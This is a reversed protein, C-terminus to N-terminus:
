AAQKLANLNASRTDSALQSALEASELAGMKRYHDSLQQAARWDNPCQMLYSEVQDIAKEPLELMELLKAYSCTYHLSIQSLMALTIEAQQGNNESLNCQTIRILATEILRGVTKMDTRSSGIADSCSDIAQQYLSTASDKDDNLEQILGNIFHVLADNPWQRDNIAGSLSMLEDTNKNDFLFIVSNVCNNILTKTDTIVKKANDDTKLLSALCREKANSIIVKDADSLDPNADIDLALVRAPTEDTEWRAILEPMCLSISQESKRLAVKRQAVDIFSTLTTAGNKLMGYYSRAWAEMEAKSMAEFGAPTQLTMFATSSYHKIAKTYPDFKSLRAELNQLRQHKAPTAQRGNREYIYDVCVLAKKCIDAISKYARRADQLERGVKSLSDLTPKYPISSDFEPKIADLIVDEKSILPISDLRTAESSLNYLKNTEENIMKGLSEMSEISRQLVLNTGAVRGSYTTVQADYGSPLSRLAAEPTGDVHTGGLSSFCFDAGALLITSFGLHAAVIVGTHGVTPGTVNLTTCSNDTFQDWPLRDGIFYHPGHWQQLLRPALHHSHILPVDDWLVGQKSIEYMYPMPDVAVVLDPKVNLQTLKECLRSIAIIFLHERNELVWNIHEQLSPGGALVIAVKGDGFTANEAIPTVNDAANELQVEIFRQMGLSHQIRIQRESVSLRAKRFAQTYQSNHDNNCCHSRHIKVARKQFWPTYAAIAEDDQWSAISMFSIRPPTNDQQSLTLLEAYETEVYPVVDDIDIVIACSGPAQLHEDLYSLMLGSDSGVVLHLTDKQSLDLDLDRIYVDSCKTSAFTDRNIDPLYREGWRNEEFYYSM